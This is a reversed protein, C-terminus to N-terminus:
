ALIAVLEGFGKKSRRIAGYNRVGVEGTSYEFAALEGAETTIAFDGGTMEVGNEAILKRLKAATFKIGNITVTKKTKM